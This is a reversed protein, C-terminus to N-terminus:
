LPGNLVREKIIGDLYECTGVFNQWVDLNCLRVIRLGMKELEATRREDRQMQEQMYHGSGDLEVVLRAKPCYFDVIFEGLPKQRYFRVPYTRLYEYWLKREWPTMNKRLSRALPTNRKEYQKM